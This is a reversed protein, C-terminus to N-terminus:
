GLHCLLMIKLLHILLLVLVHQVTHLFVQYCQLQNRIVQHLTEPALTLNHLVLQVLLTLRLLVLKLRLVAEVMQHLVDLSLLVLALLADLWELRADLVLLIRQLLPHIAHLSLALDRFGSGILVLVLILDLHALVEHDLLHPALVVLHLHVFLHVLWVNNLVCELPDPRLSSDSVDLFDNVFEESSFLCVSAEQLGDTLMFLLQLSQPSAGLFLTFEEMFKLHFM